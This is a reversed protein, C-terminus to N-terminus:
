LQRRRAPAGVKRDAARAARGALLASEDMPRIVTGARRSVAPRTLQEHAGSPVWTRGVPARISAEFAAVSDVYHPLESPQHARLPENRKESLIVHGLHHDKRQPGKPAAASLLTDTPRRAISPRAVTPAPTHTHPPLM